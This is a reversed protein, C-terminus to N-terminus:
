KKVEIDDAMNDFTTVGSRLYVTYQRVRHDHPNKGLEVGDIDARLPIKTIRGNKWKIELCMRDIPKGDEMNDEDIISTQKLMVGDSVPILNFLIVAENDHTPSNHVRLVVERIPKTDNEEFNFYEYGFFDLWYNARVMIKFDVNSNYHNKQSGSFANLKLLSVEYNEYYAADLELAKQIFSKTVKSYTNLVSGLTSNYRSAAEIIADACYFFRDYENMREWNRYDRIYKLCKLAGGLYEDVGKSYKFIENAVDERFKNALELSNYGFVYFLFAQMMADEKFDAASGTEIAEDIYQNLDNLDIPYKEKYVKSLEVWGIDGMNGIIGNLQNLKSCCALIINAAYEVDQLLVKEEALKLDKKNVKRLTPNETISYDYDIGILKVKESGKPDSNWKGVSEFYIYYWDNKDPPFVNDLSLSVMISGGGQLNKLEESYVYVYNDEARLGPTIEDYEEEASSDSIEEDSGEEKLKEKLAKDKSIIRLRVYGSWTNRTVNKISFQYNNGVWELDSSFQLDNTFNNPKSESTVPNSLDKLSVMNEGPKITITATEFEENSNGRVSITLETGVPIQQREFFKDTITKVVGDSYVIEHYSAAGYKPWIVGTIYGYSVSQEPMETVQIVVENSNLLHSNGSGDTYGGQIFYTYSGASPSDTFTGNGILNETNKYIVAKAGNADKRALAFRHVSTPVDFHLQVVGNNETATLNITPTEPVTVTFQAEDGVGVGFSNWFKAKLTHTGPTLDHVDFNQELTIDNSPNGLKVMVPTENDVSLSYQTVMVNAGAEASSVNYRSKVIIPTMTIASTTRKSNSVARCYLRHHGPTVAGLDLDSVFLYDQGDSAAEGAITYVNERDDDLWYELQTAKGASLKLIPSSVVASCTRRSSSVARCNLRHLGQSLDRLDLENVFIYGDGDSAANGNLIKSHAIDDDIWYELDTAVGASLKFFKSSTVASVTRRSSSVARCNLRHLGMPVDQLDLNDIYIYGDGDSAANGTLTKSHELDDDIWYELQSAQGAAMKLIPSSYIASEGEGEVAVRIYLKHFGFPYLTNNRLDLELSQEEETNSISMSERQDINGDVWYELTSSQPVTRKLFLSSSIASYKGNSQKARFNFRHVGNTLHGTEIGINVVADLGSLSGTERSSFGNDFWYEYTTLSQACLLTPMLFLLCAIICNITKRSM